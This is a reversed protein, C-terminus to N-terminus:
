GLVGAAFLNSLSVDYTWDRLAPHQNGPVVQVGQASKWFCLLQEPRALALLVPSHSTVIVQGSYVSSLSQFITELATPHVGNEPEEILYVSGNVETLYALITLGLLRLTGDSVVWQPVEIGNTYRLTLYRYKDEPRFSTKVTELDPLTTRLHAIWRNFAPQHEGLRAVLRPLNWGDFDKARRQSPPSASRLLESDLTVSRVGDALLTKLWAAAPFGTEDLPLNSLGSYSRGLQFDIRNDGIEPTFHVGNSDRTLVLRDVACGEGGCLRILESAFVVKEEVTDLRLVVEYRITHPVPPEYRSKRDDPIRAEIAVRFQTGERGWVLDHFNESREEIAAQVTESTLTGLFAVVDLFTSKGSGNPGVLIQFPKVCQDLKRFCRFGEAEIRSIM